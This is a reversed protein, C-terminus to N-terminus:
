MKSGPGMKMGPMSSEHEKLHDDDMGAQWVRAPDAEFPYVHTMWGSLHAMFMGGAEQCAAATTISGDVGFQKDKGLWNVPKGTPPVCINTHMHWQAISLPVKRNLETESENFRAMYMVGVLKYGTGVKDYLLAPPNAPDFESRGMQWGVRIFHYVPQPLEPMFIVYGDALAKRYDLYREAAGKAAVVIADARAKDGPQEPKLTTMKMHADMDHDDAIAKVALTSVAVLLISLGIGSFRKLFSRM